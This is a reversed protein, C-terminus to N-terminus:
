FQQQLRARRHPAFPVEAVSKIDSTADSTAEIKELHPIQQSVAPHDYDTEISAGSNLQSTNPSGNSTVPALESFAQTLEDDGEVSPCESNGHAEFLAPSVITDHHSGELSQQQLPIIDDDTLIETNIPLAPQAVPIQDLETISQSEQDLESRETSIAIPAKEPELERHSDRNPPSPNDAPQCTRAGSFAKARSISGEGPTPSGATNDRAVLPAARFSAGPSQALAATSSSRRGTREGCHFPSFAAAVEASPYRRLDGCPGAICRDRACPKREGANSGSGALM